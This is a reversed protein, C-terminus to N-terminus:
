GRAPGRIEGDTQVRERLVGLDMEASGRWDGCEAAGRAIRPLTFIIVVVVRTAGIEKDFSRRVPPSHLGACM